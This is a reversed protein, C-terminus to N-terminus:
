KTRGIIVSVFNNIIEFDNTFILILDCLKKPYASVDRIKLENVIADIIINFGPINLWKINIEKVVKHSIYNELRVIMSFFAPGRKRLREKWEGKHHDKNIIIDTDKLRDNLENEDIKNSSKYSNLASDLRKYFLNEWLILSNVPDMEIFEKINNRDNRLDDGYEKEKYLGTSIINLFTNRVKPIRFYAVSLFFEVFTRAEKDALTGGRSLGDLSFNLCLNNFHIFNEIIKEDILYSDRFVSDSGQDLFWARWLTGLDFEARNNLLYLIKFGKARQELDFSEMLKIINIGIDLMIKQSNYLDRNSHYNYYLCSEKFSKELTNAINKMSDLIQNTLDRSASYTLGTLKLFSQLLNNKQLALTKLESPSTNYDTQQLTKASELNLYVSSIDFGSETHVGCMVQRILPIKKIEIIGEVKGVEKGEWFIKEHFTKLVNDFIKFKIVQNPIAEPENNGSFGLNFFTSSQKTIINDNESLIKYFNFNSYGIQTYKAILEVDHGSVMDQGTMSVRKANFEKHANIDDSQPLSYADVYKLDYVNLSINSSRLDVMSLKLELSLNNIKNQGNRDHNNISIPNLSEVWKYTTVEEKNNMNPDIPLTYESEISHSM